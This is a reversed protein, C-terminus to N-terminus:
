GSPIDIGSRGSPAPTRPRECRVRCAESLSVAHLRPDRLPSKSRPNRSSRNLGPTHSVKRKPRPKRYGGERETRRFGPGEPPTRHNKTASHQGGSAFRLDVSERWFTTDTRSVADQHRWFARERSARRDIPL